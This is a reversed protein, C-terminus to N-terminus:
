IEDRSFNIWEYDYEEDTGGAGCTSYSNLVLELHGDDAKASDSAACYDTDKQPWFKLWYLPGTPDIAGRPIRPYPPSLDYGPDHRLALVFFVDAGRMDGNEDTYRVMRAGDQVSTFHYGFEDKVAAVYLASEGSHEDRDYGALIPYHCTADFPSISDFRLWLVANGDIVMSDVSFNRLTNDLSSAILV